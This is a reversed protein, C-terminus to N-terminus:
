CPPRSTQQTGIPELDLDRALHLLCTGVNAIHNGVSLYVQEDVNGEALLRTAVAVMQAARGHAMANAIHRREGTGIGEDLSDAGHM